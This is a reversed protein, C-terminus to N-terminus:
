DLTRNHKIIIKGLRQLDVGRTGAVIVEVSLRHSGIVSRESLVAVLRQSLINTGKLERLRETRGANGIVEFRNNHLFRIPIHTLALHQRTLGLHPAFLPSRCSLGKSRFHRVGEVINTKRRTAQVHSVWLRKLQRM